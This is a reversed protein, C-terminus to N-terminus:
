FVTLSSFCPPRVKLEQLKGMRYMDKQDSKTFGPRPPNAQSYVDDAGDNDEIGDVSYQKSPEAKGNSHAM